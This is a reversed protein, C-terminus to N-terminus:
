STSSRSVAARACVRGVCSQWTRSSSPQRCVRQTLGVISRHPAMWGPVGTGGAPDGPDKGTAVGRGGHVCDEAADILRDLIVLRVRRHPAPWGHFLVLIHRPQPFLDLCFRVLEVPPDLRQETLRGM